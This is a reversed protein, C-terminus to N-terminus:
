AERIIRAVLAAGCPIFHSREPLYLDRANPLFDALGQWTPSAALNGPKLPDPPARLV